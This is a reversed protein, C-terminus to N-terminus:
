QSSGGWDGFGGAYTSDGYFSLYTNTMNYRRITNTTQEYSQGISKGYRATGKMKTGDSLFIAVPRTTEISWNTFVMNTFTTFNPPVPVRNTWKSGINTTTVIPSGLASVPSTAQRVATGNTPSPSVATAAVDYRYGSALITGNTQVTVKLKHNAAAGSALIVSSTFEKNTM